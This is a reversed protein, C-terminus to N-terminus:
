AFFASTFICFYMFLHFFSSQFYDSTIGISLAILYSRYLFPLCSSFILSLNGGGTTDRALTERESRLGHNQGLCGFNILALFIVSM